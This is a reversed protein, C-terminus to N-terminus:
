KQGEKYNEYWSKVKQKGTGMIDVFNDWDYFAQEVFLDKYEKIKNYNEEGLKERSFDNLDHSGDSIILSAKDYASGVGSGITEKYNPYRSSILNDINAIDILLQQKASDSLDSFKVGNIEGDYFLFDVCYIFYIRGNDLFSDDSSNEVGSGLKDFYDLVVSDNENYLSDTTISTSSAITVSTIVPITTNISDFLTVPISTVVPISTTVFPVTTTSIDSVTTPTEYDSIVTTVSTHSSDNSKNSCGCLNVLFPGSMLLVVSKYLKFNNM